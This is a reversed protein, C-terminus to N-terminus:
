FNVNNKCLNEEFLPNLTMLNRLIFRRFASM